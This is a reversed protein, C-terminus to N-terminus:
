KLALKIIIALLFGGGAGILVWKWWDCKPCETPPPIKQPQPKLKIVTDRVITKSTCKIHLMGYADKWYRAEIHNLSDIVVIPVNILTTDHIFRQMEVTDTVTAGPILIPVHVFTTDTDIEFFGCPGYNRECSKRSPACSTLFILCFIIGLLCAVLSSGALLSGLYGSIRNATNPEYDRQVTKAM